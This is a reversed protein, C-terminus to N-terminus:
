VAERAPEAWAKYQGGQQEILMKDRKTMVTDTSSLASVSLFHEIFRTNACKYFLILIFLSKLRDIKLSNVTLHPM